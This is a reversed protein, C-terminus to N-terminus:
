KAEESSLYDEMIKVCLHYEKRAGDIFAYGNTQEQLDETCYVTICNNNDADHCVIDMRYIGGPVLQVGSTDLKIWDCDDYYFVNTVEEFMIEETTADVVRVTVEVDNNRDYTGICFSISELKGKSAIFVESQQRNSIMQGVNGYIKPTYLTVYPPRVAAILCVFVPVLFIALGGIFRARVFGVTGKAVNEKFDDVAFKPHKFIAMILLLVSFISLIMGRDQFVLIDKIQIKSIIHENLKSGLVGNVLLTEDAIGGFVNVSFLVFFLMLMLDLAMFIGTDKHIFASITLFPAMILLYQPEWSGMGFMAFMQLCILYLAWKISDAKSEVTKTYAYAMVLIVAVVTLNVTAGGLPIASGMVDIKLLKFFNDRYKEDLLFVSKKIVAPILFILTNVAIKTFGKHKLLLLTIFVPFARAGLMFAIAFSVVFFKDDDKLWFYFGLLTFFLMYVESQGLIFQCYFGVPMTMVAYTCLKSKVTEMGMEMAIKYVVIGCAFYAACSIISSVHFGLFLLFCGLAVIALLIYDIFGNKLKSM